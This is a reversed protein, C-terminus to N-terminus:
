SSSSWGSGKPNFGFPNWTLFFFSLFALEFQRYINWHHRDGNRLVIHEYRRSYQRTDNWHPWRDDFISSPRSREVRRSLTRISLAAAVISIRTLFTDWVVFFFSFFLVSRFILSIQRVRENPGAMAAPNTTHRPREVRLRHTRRGVWQSPRNSNEWRLLSVSDHGSDSVEKAVRHEDNRKLGDTNENGNSHWGVCGWTGIKKQRECPTHIWKLSKTRSGSDERIRAERWTALYIRRHRKAIGGPTKTYVKLKPFAAYGSNLLGGRPSNTEIRRHSPM